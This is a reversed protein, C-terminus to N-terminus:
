MGDDPSPQTLTTQTKASSSIETSEPSLSTKEVIPSLPLIPPLTPKGDGSGRYRSIANLSQTSRGSPNTFLKRLDGTSAATTPAPRGMLHLAPDSKSPSLWAIRPPSPVERDHYPRTWSTTSSVSLKNGRSFSRASIPTVTDLSPTRQRRKGNADSDSSPFVQSLVKHMLFSPFDFPHAVCSCPATWSGSGMADYLHAHAARSQRREREDLNDRTLSTGPLSPLAIIARLPISARPLETLLAQLHCAPASNIRFHFM